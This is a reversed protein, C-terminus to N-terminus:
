ARAARMVQGDRDLARGREILWEVARRVRKDVHDGTRAIELARAAQTVLADRPLSFDSDLVALVSAAIEELAIESIDRRFKDRDAGRFTTTDPQDPRWLFDGHRVVLRSREAMEIGQDLKRRVHHGTRMIGWADRLRRRVADAHVPAEVEVCTQVMTALASIPVEDFSQRLQGADLLAYVYTEARPSRDAGFASGAGSGNEPTELESGRDLPKLDIVREDPTIWSTSSAESAPQESRRGADRAAEVATLVREVEDKPDRVWDRSWIRHIRWGLNELVQQRLRDRDRATKASHYTAGDCEIGLLYRGPAANDVVGLDIRFGSCGIQRHVQLGRRELAEQVAEEFPSDAEGGASTLMEAIAGVGREAFDLYARLLRAGESTAQELNIDVAMISSVVKVQERARTVAVNLRRAGGSRNLPGFNMTLHGGADKGYGISLLIVDREDGQVAELNKVFFPEQRDEAFFLELDRRVLRRAELEQLIALMQAQSLAVVGLTRKPTSEAHAVVLDVIKAAEIRNTRSRSRDYVGDLVHVFSVGTTETQRDPSPFTVLDGQYFNANSFAILSEHRSRYHWRLRVSPLGVSSCEDLVSEYADAADDEEDDDPEDGVAVAFFRTPPLQQQDGAVILQKGRLIAGVADESSIQSAEDFIVVDFHIRTTPDNSRPEDRAGNVPALPSGAELFRSVSLPSMMLCPKLELLLNPIESFLRRLPKHRRRKNFERLLIGPESHSSPMAPIKPRRRMVQQRIRSAALRLSQRDLDRFEEVLKEHQEGRFAHLEPARAYRADLWQEYIGRLLADGWTEVPPRDRELAAVYDGLGADVAIQRARRLDVWRELESLQSVHSGIWDHVASFPAEHLTKGAARPWGPEFISAFFQVSEAITTLLADLARRQEATPLGDGGPASIRAVFSAPPGDSGFTGVTRETWAVTSLVADWDTGRHSFLEGFHASLESAEARLQAEARLVALAEDIDAVAGALSDWSHDPRALRLTWVASWFRRLATHWQELWGRLDELPAVPLPLGTFPLVDFPALAALTEFQGRIEELLREIRAHLSQATAVSSGSALLHDVLGRPVPEDGYFDLLRRVLGLRRFVDDWDTRLEGQYHQGFAEFLMLRHEQHWARAATVKAARRLVAVAGSFDLEAPSGTAETPRRLRRVARLDRWYGPRLVRFPSDYTDTFREVLDPTALDFLEAEYEAQLAAGDERVIAQQAKAEEALAEFDTLRARAFWSRLPRPDSAVVTALQEVGRAGDLSNVKDLEFLDSLKSLTDGLTGLLPVLAGLAQDVQAANAVAVDAPVQGSGRFRAVAAASEGTLVGRIATLDLRLLDDRYRMLLAARRNSCSVERDRREQALQALPTLTTRTFWTAPPRPTPAEAILDLLGRFVRLASVTQPTGLACANALRQAITSADTIASSLREGHAQIDRQVQLTVDFLTCHWWPHQEAARLVGARTAFGTAALRLQALQGETLDAAGDVRFALAPADALRAVEGHIAYASRGLSTEDDHLARVYENLHNRQAALQDLVFDVRGAAPGSEAASYVRRLEDLITTKSAKHSHAELLFDALGQEKLRRYVVELAAMKESVFLVKKGAALCEAIINAITQSKGTGPPGQIVFSSGRAGKVIAELQSSDADLLHYTDRPLVRRDLEAASPDDPNWLGLAAGEEDTRVVRALAKVIPHHLARGTNAALDKLMTLKLFFFMGLVTDDSVRWRPQGAVKSRAHELIAALSLPEEDNGPPLALEIEFESRLHEVLTPNLLVEEDDIPELAYPDFASQRDLAVPVLMLPSRVVEQSDTTETWELMGFAVYLINVGQEAIASRASLRIRYCISDLRKRSAVDTLVEGSRLKPPLAPVDVVPPLPTPAAATSEEDPDGLLELAIEQREEELPPQFVTFSRERNVLGDYLTTADPAVLRLTTSKTPRFHLLRNRRSRDLLRRQWDAIKAQIKSADALEGEAGALDRKSAAM